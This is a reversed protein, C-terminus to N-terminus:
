EISGLGGIVQVWGGGAYGEIRQRLDQSSSAAVHWANFASGRMADLMCAANDVTKKVLM